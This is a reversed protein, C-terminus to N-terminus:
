LRGVDIQNGNRGGLCANQHKDEFGRACIINTNVIKSGFIKACETNGIVIMMVFNLNPSVHPADQFNRM